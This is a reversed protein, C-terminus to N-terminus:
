RVSISADYIEKIESVSVVFEESPPRIVRPGFAMFDIVIPATGTSADGEFRLLESSASDIWYRNNKGYRLISVKRGRLTDARMFVSGEKQQILLANEREKSALATLISIARDLLRQEPEPQRAVFLINPRGASALIRSLEPRRELLVQSAWIVEAVGADTGQSNVTARGQHNKWDVSGTMTLSEGMGLFATSISFDAGGSEFNKFQVEALLASEDTTLPRETSQQKEAGGCSAILLLGVVFLRKM